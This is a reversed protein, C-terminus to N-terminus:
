SNGIAIIEGEIVDEAERDSETLSDWDISHTVRHDQTEYMGLHKMAMDIYQAKRNMKYRTTVTEGIANGARDYRTSVDQEIADITAAVSDPLDNINEILRGDEDVMQKASRILGFKIQQVVDQRRLETGELMEKKYKGVIQKIKQNTKLLKNGATSPCAYGAINAASVANFSICYETTFVQQKDTLSTFDRGYNYIATSAM